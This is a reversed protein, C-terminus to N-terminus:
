LRTDEVENDSEVDADTGNDDGLHWTERKQRLSELIRQGEEKTSLDYDADDVDSGDHSSSALWRSVREKMGHHYDEEIGILQSELAAVSITDPKEVFQFHTPSSVESHRRSTAM